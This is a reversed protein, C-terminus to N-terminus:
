APVCQLPAAGRPPAGRPPPAAPHAVVTCRGSQPRHRRTPQICHSATAVGGDDLPGPVCKDLLDTGVRASIDLLPNGAGLLTAMTYTIPRSPPQRNCTITTSTTTARWPRVLVSGEGAGGSTSPPRPVRSMIGGPDALRRTPDGAGSGSHPARLGRGLTPCRAALPSWGCGHAPLTRNDASRCASPYPLAHPLTTPPPLCPHLRHNASRVPLPTACLPALHRCHRRRRISSTATVDSM